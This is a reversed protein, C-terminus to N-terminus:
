FKLCVRWPGHWFFIIWLFCCISFLCFCWCITPTFSNLSHTYYGALPQKVLRSLVTKFIIPKHDSFYSDEIQLIQLLSGFSLILDLTHGKDHTAGLVPQSLNFSDVIQLFQSVLPKDPCCVHINFDGLVLLWDVNPVISALFDSFEKLFLKGYKPPRYILACFIPHVLDVRCLQVEFCSFTEVNEHRWHRWM